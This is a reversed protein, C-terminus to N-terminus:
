RKSTARARWRSRRRPRPTATSSASSRIPGLDVGASQAVARIKAEPGILVPVILGRKAAEIPGVLSDHDCPHVVACTVPPLTECRKFLKVFGDNRRLVLEPTAINAYAIRQTPAAVTAVGQALVEGAQNVCNCEFEIRHGKGHKASATVTATLTDGVHCM